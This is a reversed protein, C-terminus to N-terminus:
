LDVALQVQWSRPAEIAMPRISYVENSLNTAILAAKVHPTIQYGLRADVIWDGTTHTLMWGKAGSPLLLPNDFDVFAKDINRVHSNYRISIGGSLKKWKVGVDSRFLSRVRYKLINDTTDYSTNRYGVPVPPNGLSTAYTANPTTCVPTTHTQRKYM